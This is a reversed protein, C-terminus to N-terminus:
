EAFRELLSVQSSLSQHHGTCASSPMLAECYSQELVWLKPVKWCM